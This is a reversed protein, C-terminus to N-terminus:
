NLQRTKRDISILAALCLFFLSGVKDTEILDSLFNVTAIMMLMVAIAMATTKFFKDSARHYIKEAYFIMGGILLLFILLGPLGQEIATLLFYNHVTSHEENKSVWTKFVPIAYPKYNYYFTAPGYGLEWKDDVMRVGAIWRNFREATSVDKLQYTATLHQSFNKHFITTRFDHAYELYRDNSKLWFLGAIVLIISFVFSFFLKRKIILFYSIAGVLLALWAGRSYSLFLALLVIVLIGFIFFRSRKNLQWCAVLVPVTCVLMASYNVHNRFFPALAKNITAFSLGLQYHRILSLITVSVMSALFLLAALRIWKKETFFILPTFVFALLYWSKALLYKLSILWDTSFIVSIIIWFFHLLLIGILPHKWVSRELVRPQYIWNILFLAATLLMLPEDPLDTGLTATFNYEISWPLLFILCFFIFSWNQWGFYFLLMGFPVLIIWYLDSYVAVGLSFLFIASLIFFHLSSYYPNVKIM